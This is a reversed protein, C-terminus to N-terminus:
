LHHWRVQIPRNPMFCFNWYMNREDFTLEDSINLLITSNVLLTVLDVQKEAYLMPDVSYMKLANLHNEMVCMKLIV